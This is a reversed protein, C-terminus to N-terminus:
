RKDLYSQLIAAAAIDDDAGDNKVEFNKRISGVLKTTLREDELVIEIGLQKLSELFKEFEASVVNDNNFYVPKGLIIKEIGEDAIIYKLKEFFSEDIKKEILIPSAIKTEDSGIALGIKSKGWDLGLYKM